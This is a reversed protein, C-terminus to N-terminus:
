ICKHSDGVHGIKVKTVARVCATAWGALAIGGSTLAARDRSSRLATKGQTTTIHIHVPERRGPLYAETQSM